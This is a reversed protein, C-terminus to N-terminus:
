PQHPEPIVLPAIPRTTMAPLARAGRLQPATRRRAKTHGKM